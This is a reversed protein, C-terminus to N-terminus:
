HTFEASHITAVCVQSAEQILNRMDSGSYGKTRAVIKAIDSQPLDARVSCNTGLQRLLMSERAAECPLPIYM